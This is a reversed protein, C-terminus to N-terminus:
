ERCYVSTLVAFRPDDVISTVNPSGQTFTVSVAPRGPAKAMVSHYGALDGGHGWVTVGCGLDISTLGLGYGFGPGHLPWPVTDTMQTLEAPAVVRGDLLATIFAAMDENTSILSGAMYEGSPEAATVDERRGGVLEYGHAMPSRLGTDGAAPFYTHTLGLPAIIRRTIEDAASRGTVSEIILGAVVYNTNTYVPVRQGPPAGPKALAQSLLDRPSVPQAPPETTDDFYEPLGSQHRLLQRVSIAAGDIGEGRILGPLYTDVPEDLEVRGESVLQLITAAVFTKTISAVRVYTQPTFTTRTSVDTHGAASLTVAAGDAVVAVAGALGNAAVSEALAADLPSPQAHASPAVFAIILAGALAAALRM